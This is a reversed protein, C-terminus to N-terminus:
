FFNKAIKYMIWLTFILIAFAIIIVVTETNSIGALFLNKYM